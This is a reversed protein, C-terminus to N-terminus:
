KIEQKSNREKDTNGIRRRIRKRQRQRDRKQQSNGGDSVADERIYKFNWGINLRNVNGRKIRASIMVGIVDSWSRHNRAHAAIKAFAEFYIIAILPFCKNLGAAKATASVYKM